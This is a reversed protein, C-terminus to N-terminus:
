GLPAFSWPSVTDLKWALRLNLTEPKRFKTGSRYNWDRRWGTDINNNITRSTSSRKDAL